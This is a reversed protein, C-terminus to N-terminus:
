PFLHSQHLTLLDSFACFWVGACCFDGLIFLFCNSSIKNKIVALEILWGFTYGINLVFGIFIYLLPLTVYGIYFSALGVFYMIINYPIRRAEWWAVIEYWKRDQKSIRFVDM